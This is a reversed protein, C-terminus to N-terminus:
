KLLPGDHDFISQDFDAFAMLTNLDDFEPCSRASLHGPGEEVCERLYVIPHCHVARGIGACGGLSITVTPLAYGSASGLGGAEAKSGLELLFHAM